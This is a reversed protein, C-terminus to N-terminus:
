NRKTKRQVDFSPIFCPTRTMYDEYDNGLLKLLAPEESFKVALVVYLTYVVDLLLHGVTQLIFVISPISVFYM